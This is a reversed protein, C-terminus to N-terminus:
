SAVEQREPDMTQVENEQKALGAALLRRAIIRALPRLIAERAQAETPRRDVRIMQIDWNHSM